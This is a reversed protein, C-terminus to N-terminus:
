ATNSAEDDSLEDNSEPEHTPGNARALEALGAYYEPTRAVGGIAARPFKKLPVDKKRLNCARQVVSTRKLELREAVQDASEAQQWTVIFTEDDVITRSETSM